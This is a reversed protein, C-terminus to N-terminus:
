KSKGNRTKRGNVILLAELRDLWKLRGGAQDQFAIHGRVSLEIETGATASSLVHLRAGIRDARERMGSLGWHGDRGAGIVHPDIGCGDDRVLLRLYSATYKLEVEISKAQAHRFANILAERGILYVEDRLAPHLPRREGNVVVRFEIQEQALEDPICSLAQELDISASGYGRLGRVANRGEEIVRGMLQMARNLIPKEPSDAPLSDAAVHVHMSASLFGQLLTDHLEQAIRTREALREEFRNQIQGSIRRLRLFYVGTILSAIVVFALFRFWNTEYFYPQQSVKYIIGARDWVGNSNCARLRFAHAGPPISTYVASRTGDANLWDPDVGDMRYQFRIKEPSALEISDFQLEVHHTGPALVLEDGAPQKNRGIAVEEVFLAPPRNTRPLRPLDIMALGQVTAVWLKGDATIAMNPNGISCQTSNLGDARGFSTYDLPVERDRESRNISVAPVRFIGDGGSFWLDRDQFEAMSLLDLDTNVSVLQNRELHSLGKPASFAYLAGFPGEALDMYRPDFIEKTSPVSIFHDGIMRDIGRSTGVWIGGSRDQFVTLVSNSSLGDSTTYNRFGGNQMHSLGAGTPVWLSGDRAAFIQRVVEHALGQPTSFQTFHGSKFRFLGGGWTGIWLDSNRGEALAWVCSNLLGDKEGYTKFRRGDFSSLGGCNNGVWLTGDHSSLVTMTTNNPLGDATTFMRLARDKFRVLGDTNTGVWLEGDRDTFLSRVRSSLALPEEGAISPRFLLPPVYVWVNGQNDEYIHNEYNRLRVGNGPAALGYPEFREIRGGTLRAVGAHTCFWLAGTHDQMVHFYGKPGIGLRDALGPHEVVRDGDWDIFEHAAVMLLHGDPAQELQSIGGRALVLVFIGRDFRYLGAETGVWLVGDRAFKLSGVDDSLGTGPHYITAILPRDLNNLGAGAIRALGFSTGVWLDGDPAEALSRVIGQATSQPGRFNVPTFHRGDFRTLGADTGIWLFGNRTQVIVNVVNSPLGDEVTFETRIYRGAPQAADLTPGYGSFITLLAAACVVVRRLERNEGYSLVISM